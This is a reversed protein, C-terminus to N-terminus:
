YTPIELGAEQFAERLKQVGEGVKGLSCLKVGEDRLPKASEVRPDSMYYTERRFDRELLQCLNRDAYSAASAVGAVLCALTATAAVLVFGRKVNM